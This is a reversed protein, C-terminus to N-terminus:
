DQKSADSVGAALKKQLAAVVEPLVETLTTGDLAVAAGFRDGHELPVTVRIAQVAPDEDTVGFEIAGAHEHLWKLSEEFSLSGLIPIDLKM